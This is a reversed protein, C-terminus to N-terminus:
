GVQGLRVSGANQATAPHGPAAGPPRACILNDPANLVSLRAKLAPRRSVPAAPPRASHTLHTITQQGQEQAPIHHSAPAHVLNQRV